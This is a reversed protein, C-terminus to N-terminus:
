SRVSKTSFCYSYLQDLEDIAKPDSPVMETVALGQTHAAPFAKRNGVRADILEIGPTEAIIRAADENDRGIPDARNLFAWARLAPNVARVEEILAAVKDLTWVDPGRPPTPLLVVDATTLAARQTATDRGGVDIVVDSYNPALKLVETRAAKGRLQICTLGPTRESATEQRTASWLTTTEQEDGDILLVNPVDAARRVALNAAITSKGAGGKIGGLVIIM